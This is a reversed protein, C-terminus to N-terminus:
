DNDELVWLGSTPTTVYRLRGVTGAEKSSTRIEQSRLYQPGPHPFGEGPAVVFFHGHRGTITGAFTQKM